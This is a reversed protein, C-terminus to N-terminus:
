REELDIRIPKKRWVPQIKRINYALAEDRAKEVAEEDVNALFRIAAPAKVCCDIAHLLIDLPEAGFKKFLKYHDLLYYIDTEARYEIFTSDISFARAYYQVVNDTTYIIKPEDFMYFDSAKVDPVPRLHLEPHTYFIGRQILNVPYPQKNIVTAGLDWLKEPLNDYDMYELKSNDYLDIINELQNENYGLDELYELTCVTKKYQDMGPFYGLNDYFKKALDTIM